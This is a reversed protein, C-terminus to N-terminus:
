QGTNQPSFLGAKVLAERIKEAAAVYDPNVTKVPGQAYSVTETDTYTVIADGSTLINVVRIHSRGTPYRNIWGYPGSDVVLEYHDVPGSVDTHDVAINEQELVHKITDILHRYNERTQRM